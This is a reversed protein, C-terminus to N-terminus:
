ESPPDDIQERLETLIRSLLRSVQMQTVGIDDAIEQQTWGRFFRLMLIRRDRESLRRVVPALV